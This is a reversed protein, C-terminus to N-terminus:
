RKLCSCFQTKSIWQEKYKTLLAFIAFLKSTENVHTSFSYFKNSIRIFFMGLFKTFEYM